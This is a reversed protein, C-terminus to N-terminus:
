VYSAAVTIPLGDGEATKGCKFIRSSVYGHIYIDQETTVPEADQQTFNGTCGLM